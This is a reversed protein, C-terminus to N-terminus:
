IHKFDSNIQSFRVMKYDEFLLVSILFLNQRMILCNFYYRFNRNRFYLEIGKFNYESHFNPKDSVQLM